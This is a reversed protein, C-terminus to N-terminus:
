NRAAEEAHRQFRFGPGDAASWERRRSKLSKGPARTRAARLVSCVLRDKRLPGSQVSSSPEPASRGRGMWPFVKVTSSTSLRNSGTEFNSPFTCVSPEPTASGSFSLAQRAPRAVSTHVSDYFQPPHM